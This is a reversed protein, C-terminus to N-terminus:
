RFLVAAKEVLLDALADKSVVSKLQKKSIVFQKKLFNYSTNSFVVPKSISKLETFLRDLISKKGIAILIFDQGPQLGVKKIADNIQRTCAFRMLIDTELRSSLMTNANKSAISLIVIKKVHDLSLIYNSKVGQIVLNDYKKRLDELFKVPQDVKKIKMLEIRTKFAVFRTRLIVM